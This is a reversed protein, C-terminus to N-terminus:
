LNETGETLPHHSADPLSAPSCWSCDRRERIRHEILWAAVVYTPVHNFEHAIASLTAGQSWSECAYFGLGDPSIWQDFPGTFEADIYDRVLAALDSGTCTDFRDDRAAAIAHHPFLKM